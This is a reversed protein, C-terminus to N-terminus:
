DKPPKPLPHWKTPGSLWELWPLGDFLSVMVGDEFRMFSVGDVVHPCDVIFGTGDDPATEIPQWEM